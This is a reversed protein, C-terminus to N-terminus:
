ENIRLSLFNIARVVKPGKENNTVLLHKNCCYLRGRPGHHMLLVSCCSTGVIERDDSVVIPALEDASFFLPEKGVLWYLDKLRQIVMASM